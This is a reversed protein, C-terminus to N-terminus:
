RAPANTLPVLIRTAVVDPFGDDVTFTVEPILAQYRPAPLSKDAAGHYAAWAKRLAPERFVAAPDDAHRLLMQAARAPRGLATALAEVLAYGLTHQDDPGHRTLDARKELEGLILLPWRSAIPLLIRQSSWEAFGEALHPELGPLRLSLSDPRSLSDAFRELQQRRFLLHQWEHVVAGVALLPSYGPDIVIADEPELFGNLSERSQRPVTTLRLTERSTRLFTRTSDGQPLRRLTRLLEAEGKQQLWDLGAPNDPRVLQSFLESPVGYQPVAQPYGFWRTEIRPLPAEVEPSGLRRWEERVYDQISRGGDEPMWREALFFGLADAYWRQAETYGKLLTLVVGASAPDARTMSAVAAAYASSDTASMVALAYLARPLAEVDSDPTTAPLWRAGILARRADTWRLGPTRSAAWALAAEHLDVTWRGRPRFIRDFVARVTDSSIAARISELTRESAALMETRHYLGM